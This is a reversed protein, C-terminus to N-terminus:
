LLLYLSGFVLSALPLVDAEIKNQDRTLISSLCCSKSLKWKLHQYFPYTKECIM